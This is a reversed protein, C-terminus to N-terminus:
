NKNIHRLLVKYSSQYVSDSFRQGLDKQPRREDPTLLTGRKEVGEDGKEDGDGRPREQVISSSKM